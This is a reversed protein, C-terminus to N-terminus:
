DSLASVIQKVTSNVSFKRKYLSVCRNSIEHDENVVKDILTEALNKLELVQNNVCVMGVAEKKILTALDNDKNITALVPLGSRIYTLFKGPINHSNHRSDLAILGVDCQKYLIPIEDPDIEDFFLINNLRREISHIKLREVESGRGVFVFGIDDRNKLEEVLNILTDMGQAIGMNGAYVFIKRGALISESIRISCQAYTQKGLWNNLVQLKRGPQQKWEDFYKLNGQTQVGIINAVSYQYRAVADFFRYPLGNRSMLGMDVAWEPFIDRIILYGKCNSIKKIYSAFFGHFISPSYWLVGDWKENVLPSKRFQWLMIFPMLLESLTRRFYNTDKTRLTKLRLISLSSDVLDLSWIEKQDSSPLIVTLSHGQRIFEQSLDRLQISGSTRLPPFTDAILTIRM